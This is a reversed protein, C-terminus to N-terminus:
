LNNLTLDPAVRTLQERFRQRIRELGGADEAEFRLVLVPTTNSARVLGWGDPYDVRLGDITTVRAQEGWEATNELDNMLAFKRKEGVEVHLEPTSLGTPYRDFMANIQERDQTLMSVLELLRCASYLGDDFGYWREQFFVHGSMEGGLLAQTEQMKAKILSHGSKWMVPRGGLRSILQPLQRTCKVDFVIDAGPNRTVIDEAFLMLLRDACIIEGNAMVVGLRDADGDFALGLDANHQKVILQLDRLNEPKGPDPHHNPFNGDVECYLAVVECGLQELLNQAIVGGVGNGCDVVVKLPRALLVDDVIRHTYSDLIDLPQCEGNGEHLLNQELRQRLASIREGSLTQGAIVIKLGNYDPPNHSGTLMVGSTAETTHTAYYLVPTPVMGLDVVQCGCDTLGRILQELLEPGSLRGDRAVAVRPQGADLSESGIARGLWYVYEPSLTRGVVGRIDYARFIEAPLSPAGAMPEDPLDDLIDIDLVDELPPLPAAASDAVPPTPRVPQSAAPAVPAQRGRSVLQMISQALPELPGLRLGAAKHGQTLQELTQADAALAQNWSRQLLLLSALAGALALLVAALLVLPNPAGAGMASGAQFELRWAPNDTALSLVDGHGSGAQYLPQAPGAPFQQILAVKGADQPLQPLAATLRQLEFVVLLTGAIPATPATRLPEVLYLRWHEGVKHAEAPVPLGREARRIMDLAAFSLPAQADNIHRAAGPRHLYTALQHVLTGAPRLSGQQQLLAQLQPNAAARAVDADLQALARNLASQQQIAYAQSLDSRYSDAAPAFLLLWLLTLAAALSALMVLLPALTGPVTSPQRTMSPKTLKM